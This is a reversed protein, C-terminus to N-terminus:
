KKSKLLALGLAAAGVAISAIMAVGKVKSQGANDLMYHACTFFHCSVLLISHNCCSTASSAATGRSTPLM